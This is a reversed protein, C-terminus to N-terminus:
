LFYDIMNMEIYERCKAKVYDQYNEDFRLKMKAAPIEYIGRDDDRDNANSEINSQSDFSKQQASQSTM